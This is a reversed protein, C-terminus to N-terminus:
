FQIYHLISDSLLGQFNGKQFTSSENPANSLGSSSFAKHECPRSRCAQSAPARLHLPSVLGTAHCWRLRTCEDGCLGREYIEDFMRRSQCYQSDTDIYGGGPYRTASGKGCRLHRTCNPQGDRAGLDRLGGVQASGTGTQVLRLTGQRDVGRGAARRGRSLVDVRSTKRRFGGSERERDEDTSGPKREAGRLLPWGVQARAAHLFVGSRDAGV